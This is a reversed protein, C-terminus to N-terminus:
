RMGRDVEIRICYKNRFARWGKSFQSPPINAEANMLKRRQNWKVVAGCCWTIGAVALMVLVIALLGGPLALIALLWLLWNPWNHGGETSWKLLDTHVSNSVGGWILLLFATLLLVWTAGWIMRRAWHCFDTREGTYKEYYRWGGRQAFWHLVRMVPTNTVKFVDM